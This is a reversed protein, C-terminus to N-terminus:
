MIRGLSSPQLEISVERHYITVRDSICAFNSIPLMTVIIFVNECQGLRFTPSLATVFTPTLAQVGWNVTGAAPLAVMEGGLAKAGGSTSTALDM